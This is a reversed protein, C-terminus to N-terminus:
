QKIISIMLLLYIVTNNFIKSLKPM